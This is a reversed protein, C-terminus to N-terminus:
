STLFRALDFGDLDLWTAAEQLEWFVRTTEQGTIGRLTGYLRAFGLQDSRHALIARRATSRLLSQGAISEVDALSIQRMDADRLDTIADFSPDFAHHERLASRVRDFDARTLSGTFRIAVLRRKPEIAIHHPM